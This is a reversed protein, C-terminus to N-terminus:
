EGYEEILVPAKGELTVLGFERCVKNWGHISAKDQEPIYRNTGKYPLKVLPMNNKVIKPNDMIRKYLASTEKLEGNLYKVATIEGIGKIGKISDSICGSIAKVTAWECPEIDFEEKFSQHTMCDQTRPNWFCTHKNLLQLLDRDGSIIVSERKLFSLEQVVSAIIDDAEYGKQFFINIYGLKPLLTNKLNLIQNRIQSLENLEEQSRVKERRGSKYKPDYSERFSEGHDFCFVFKDTAHTEAFYVIDRMIGYIVGTPNGEFSLQGTTYHARYALYSMDLILWPNM